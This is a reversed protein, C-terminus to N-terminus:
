TSTAREWCRSLIGSVPLPIPLENLQEDGKSSQIVAVLGTPCVFSFTDVAFVKSMLVSLTSIAEQLIALLYQSLIVAKSWLRGQTQSIPKCECYYM